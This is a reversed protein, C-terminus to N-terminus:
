RRACRGSGDDRRTRAPESFKGTKHRTVFGLPPDVIVFISADWLLLRELYPSRNRAWRGITLQTYKGPAPNVVSLILGGTRLAPQLRVQGSDVETVITKGRIQLAGDFAANDLVRLAEDESGVRSVICTLAEKASMWFDDPKM